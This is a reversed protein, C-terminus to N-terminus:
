IAHDSASGDSGLDDDVSDIIGRKAHLLLQKSPSGESGTVNEAACNEELISILDREREPTPLDWTSIVDMGLRKAFAVLNRDDSYIRTASEVRAIAIIQRDVKVKQWPADSGARKDGAAIAERTMIATEVAARDDFPRTRIRAL